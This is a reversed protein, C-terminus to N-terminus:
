VSIAVQLAGWLCWALAGVALVGHVVYPLRRMPTVWILALWGLWLVAALGYVGPSQWYLMSRPLVDLLPGCASLATAWITTGPEYLGYPAGRSVICRTWLLAVLALPFYYMPILVALRQKRVASTTWTRPDRPDFPRGCEPCRAETLGRLNHRCGLCYAQVNPATASRQPTEGPPNV